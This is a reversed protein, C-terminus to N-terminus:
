IVVELHGNNTIIFDPGTYYQDYNMILHGQANIDFTAYSIGGKDGKAGKEGNCVVPVGIQCDPSLSDIEGISIDIRCGPGMGAPLAYTSFYAFDEDLYTDFRTGSANYAEFFMYWGDTIPISTGKRLKYAFVKLSTPTVDGSEPDYVIAYVQPEISYTVGPDGQPGQPGRPIGFLFVGNSYSASAESGPELTEAEASVNELLEAAAEARDVGENLADILSDITSQEEPTPQIDTVNGRQKIPIIAQYCTKGGYTGTDLWVWAHLIGATKLLNDPILVKSDTGVMSITDGNECLGFDVRFSAPLEINSFVLYQEEDLRYIAETTVTKLTGFAAIVENSINM